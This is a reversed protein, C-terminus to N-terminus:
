APWRRAKPLRSACRMCRARATASSSCSAPISTRALAFRRSLRAAKRGTSTSRRGALQTKNAGVGAKDFRLVAAGRHALVEALQKGVGHGTHVREWDRDAPASGEMMVIGLYRAHGTPHVLTGPVQNAGAAFEVDESAIALNAAPDFAGRAVPPSSSCAAVLVLLRWM